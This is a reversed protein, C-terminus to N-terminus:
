QAVQSAPIEGITQCRYHSKCNECEFVDFGQDSQLVDTVQRFHKCGCDCAFTGGYESHLRINYIIGEYPNIMM